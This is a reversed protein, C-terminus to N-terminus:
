GALKAQRTVLHAFTEVEMKKMFRARHVEVTRESISLRMAIQKNALGEVALDMVQRERSTLQALRRMQSRHVARGAAQRSDLDLAERIRRILMPMDCPKEILDVAGQRMVAATTAVDATATLFIVPLEMGRSRMQVFLEAGHIQPMALDVLACGRHAATCDELFTRGCDYSKAPLDEALLYQGIFRLYSPDDDIVFVVPPEGSAQM